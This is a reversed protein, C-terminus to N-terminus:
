DDEKHHVISFLRNTFSLWLFISTSFIFILWYLIGFDLWKLVSWYLSTNLGIFLWILNYIGHFLISYFLGYRLYFLATILGFIFVMFLENFDYTFHKLTFLFSSFLISSFIQDKLFQGLLIRRFVVEELISSLVVINIFTWLSYFLNVETKQLKTLAINELILDL